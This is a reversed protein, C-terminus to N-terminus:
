QDIAKFAMFLMKNEIKKNIRGFIRVLPNVQNKFNLEEKLRVKDMRTMKKVAGGKGLYKKAKQEFEEHMWKMTRSEDCSYDYGM